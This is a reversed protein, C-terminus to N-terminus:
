NKANAPSNMRLMANHRPDRFQGRNSNSRVPVTVAAITGYINWGSRQADRITAKPIDSRMPAIIEAANVTKRADPIRRFSSRRELAPFVDKFYAPAGCSRQGGM